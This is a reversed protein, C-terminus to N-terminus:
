RDHELGDMLLGTLFDPLDNWKSELLSDGLISEIMLGMVMGSIARVALGVDVPRILGSDVWAQLVQEALLLTPHLVQAQYLARL